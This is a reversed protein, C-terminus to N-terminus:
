HEDNRNEGRVFGTAGRREQFVTMQDLQNQNITANPNGCLLTSLRAKTAFFAKQEPSHANKEAQGFAIVAEPYQELSNYVSGLLDWIEAVDYGFPEFFYQKKNPELCDTLLPLAEKYRNFVLYWGALLRRTEWRNPTINELDRFAWNARMYKGWLQYAIGINAKLFYKEDTNPTVKFCRKYCKIALKWEHATMYFGGLHFLARQDNKDIKLREKMLKPLMKRRQEERAKTSAESQARERDHVIVFKPCYQKTKLDLNNHVAQNFQLGNRYVRPFQFTAGNEMKITVLIGDVDLLLKSEIDGFKEVFEHGDLALIWKSKVNECAGNRAKSFDEQWEHRRVEDAYLKAIEETKDTTKNDVSVVVHDVFPLASLIANEIGKEEDKAIIVLSILDSNEQGLDISFLIRDKFGEWNHFTIKGYRSYDRRIQPVTFIRCHSEDPVRDGNPVSIVIKGDPKLLSKINEFVITDRNIHELFEGLYVCDFKHQTEAHNKTFDMVHFRATKRRVEIAKSIAVDSVDVGVYEGAYYDSLSGTGCAVDLVKGTLLASVALFRAPNNHVEVSHSTFFDDYFKKDKLM